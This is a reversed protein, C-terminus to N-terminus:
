KYDYLVIEYFNCDHGWDYVYSSYFQSLASNDEWGFCHQALRSTEGQPRMPEECCM